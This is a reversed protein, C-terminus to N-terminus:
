ATEAAVGGDTGEFLKTLAKAIDANVEYGDHGDLLADGYTEFAWENVVEMAGSPMLSNRSCLDQFADEIWHDRNVIERIFAAHKADLGPVLVKQAEERKRDDEVGDFIKGLVSSARVSDSHITAIRESDLQVGGTSRQDPITEGPAAPESSRVKVLEDQMEGSHLDSYALSANLGSARYIQEIAAVEQPQVAGDAHAASVVVSRIIPVTGPAIDRLKRRLMAIGPAVALLWGLDAILRRREQESLHEPGNVVEQLFERESETILGDAHVVFTGLEIALLAARYSDSVEDLQAVASGTDFIMVPERIKPPRLAFKPDPAFGFGIQALLVSAATLNRETRQEPHKREIKEFLEDYPVLGGGAAIKRAWKRLRDLKENPILPWLEKPLLERAELSRRAKSGRGLYLNLRSLDKSVEDDIEQAISLFKRHKLVDPVLQGNFKIGFDVDFEDSASRYHCNLVSKPKGIKLGNPFRKEFRLKFLARYENRCRIGFVKLRNNPHCLFWSLAWDASLRERRLIRTGIAWRLVLPLGWGNRDYIPEIQSIDGISVKAYNIFSNLESRYYVRDGYLDNLRQVEDLIERKEAESPNDLAFRRELGCFYLLMYGPGYSMDSRGTALWELYTARREPSMRFYSPWSSLGEGNKDTGSNAVPLSPDIYAACMTYGRYRTRVKLKGIYVMGGIERGAVTASESSSVWGVHNSSDRRPGKDDPRNLNTSNEAPEPVQVGSREFPPLMTSNM